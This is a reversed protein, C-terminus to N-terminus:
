RTNLKNMILIMHQLFFLHNCQTLLYDKLKRMGHYISLYKLNPFNLLIDLLKTINEYLKLFNCFFM